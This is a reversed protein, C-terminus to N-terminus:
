HELTVTTLTSEIFSPVTILEVVTELSTGRDEERIYVSEHEDGVLDMGRERKREREDVRRERERKRKTEEEERRRVSEERTVEVLEEGNTGPEQQDGREM